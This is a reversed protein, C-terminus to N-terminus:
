DTGLQKNQGSPLAVNALIEFHHWFVQKTKTKRLIFHGTITYHCSYITYSLPAVLLPGTIRVLPKYVKSTDTFPLTGAFRHNFFTNFVQTIKV